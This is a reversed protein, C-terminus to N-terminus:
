ITHKLTQSINDTTDPSQRDMIKKRFTLSSRDVPLLKFLACGKFNIDFDSLLGETSLGATVKCVTTVSCGDVMAPLSCPKSSHRFKTVNLWFQLMITFLLHSYMQQGDYLWVPNTTLAQWYVNMLDM